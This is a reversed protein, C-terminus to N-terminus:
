RGPKPGAYIEIRRNKAKNASSSNPVLPASAGAGAAVMQAKSIGQSQLYRVVAMARQCSLELNDAWKTQRIPDSDTHGIVFIFADAHEAKIKAIIPNIQSKAKATLEPMRKRGLSTQELAGVYTLKPAPPPPPPPVNKAEKLANQLQANAQKLEDVEAQAADRAQSAELLQDGLQKKEEELQAIQVKPDPGCGTWFMASCVFGLCSVVITMRRM